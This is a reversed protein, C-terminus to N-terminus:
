TKVDCSFLKKGLLKRHKLLETYLRAGNHTQPSRFLFEDRLCRAPWCGHEDDRTM